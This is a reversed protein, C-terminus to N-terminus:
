LRGGDALSTRFTRSHTLGPLEPPTARVAPIPASSGTSWAGRVSSHQGNRDGGSAIDSFRSLLELCTRRRLLSFLQIRKREVISSAFIVIASVSFSASAATSAVLLAPCRPM